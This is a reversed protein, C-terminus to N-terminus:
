DGCMPAVWRATVVMAVVVVVVSGRGMFGGVPGSGAKGTGLVRRGAVAREPGELGSRQMEVAEFGEARGGGEGEARAEEEDSGMLGWLLCALEEEVMGWCAAEWVAWDPGGGCLVNRLVILMPEKGCGGLLLRWLWGELGSDAAVVGSPTVVSRLPEAPENLTGPLAKRLLGLTLPRPSDAILDGRIDGLANVSIEGVGLRLEDAFPDYEVPISSIPPSSSLSRSSLLVMDDSLSEPFSALPLTMTLTLTRGLAEFLSFEPRCSQSSSPRRPTM